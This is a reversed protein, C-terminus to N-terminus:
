RATSVLCHSKVGSEGGTTVPCRDEKCVGAVRHVEGVLGGEAEEEGLVVADLLDEEGENVLKEYFPLRRALLQVSVKQLHGV